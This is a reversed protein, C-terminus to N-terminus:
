SRCQGTRDDGFQEFQGRPGYEVCAVVALLALAVKALCDMNLSLIRLFIMEKSLFKQSNEGVTQEM